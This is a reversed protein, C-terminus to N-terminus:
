AIKPVEAANCYLTEVLGARRELVTPRDIDGKETIENADVPPGCRGDIAHPM